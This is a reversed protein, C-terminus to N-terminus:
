QTNLHGGPTWQYKCLNYRHTYKQTFNGYKTIILKPRPPVQPQTVAVCNSNSPQPFNESQKCNYQTTYQNSRYFSRYNTYFRPKVRQVVTPLKRNYNPM